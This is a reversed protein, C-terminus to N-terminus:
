AAAALSIVDVLGSILVQLTEIDANGDLFYDFLGPAPVPDESGRVMVTKSGLERLMALEGPQVADAIVFHQAPDDLVTRRLQEVWYEPEQRVRYATRWWELVQHPSQPQDPLDRMEDASLDYQQYLSFSVARVFALDSCNRLAFREQRQNADATLKELTVGYSEAVERHLPDAIAAQKFVGWEFPQTLLALAVRSKDPQSQGALVILM